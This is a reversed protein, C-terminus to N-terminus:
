FGFGFIGITPWNLLGHRFSQMVGLISQVASLARIAEFLVINVVKMTGFRTQLFLM